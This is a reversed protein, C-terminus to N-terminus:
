SGSGAPSRPVRIPGRRHTATRTWMESAVGRPAQDSLISALPAEAPSLQHFTWERVRGGPSADVAITMTVFGKPEYREATSTRETSGPYFVPAALAHGRLDAALVQHRHIHGTLVAAFGPPIARGPIVDPASRFVYGAPGVTSGEVTQHLCLLRLDSSASRWGTRELLSAFRERIQDRENPFGAIAVAFGCVNLLFTRPADFIYIGPHAAFLPYPIASREHNGPVVVVPVGSDALRKLPEFARLVLAPKVQSRFFVDGGHVVLDVEGRFAPQLAREFRSFFGPLGLHTDAILLLRLHGRTVRGVYLVIRRSGESDM